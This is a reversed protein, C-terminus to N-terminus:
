ETPRDAFGFASPEVIAYGQRGVTINMIATPGVFKTYIMKAIVDAREVGPVINPPAAITIGFDYTSGPLEPPDHPFFQILDNFATIKYEPFVEMIIAKLAQGCARLTKKDASTSRDEGHM